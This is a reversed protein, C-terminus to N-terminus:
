IAKYKSKFEAFSAFSKHTDSITVSGNDLPWDIKLDPDDWRIGIAHESSYYGEANLVLCCEDSLSLCGHAFGSDVYLGNINEPTLIASEWKGFTPSNKRLDVAVWFMKGKVISILKKEKFPERQSYLGRVTMKKATYSISQETWTVNMGYKDFEKKEYIRGLYGRNDSFPTSIVEYIGELKRKKIVLGM